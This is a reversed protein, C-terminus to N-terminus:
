GYIKGIWVFSYHHYHGKKAWLHSTKVFLKFVACFVICYVLILFILIELIVKCKHCWLIVNELFYHFSSMKSLKGLLNPKLFCKACQLFLINESNLYATNCWINCNWWIQLKRFTSTSKYVLIQMLTSPFYITM